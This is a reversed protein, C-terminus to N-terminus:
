RFIQCQWMENEDCPGPCKLDFEDGALDVLEAKLEKPAQKRWREEFNAAVDYATPGEVQAHIHVHVHM